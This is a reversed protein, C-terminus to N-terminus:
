YVEKGVVYGKIAAVTQLILIPFNVLPFIFLGPLWKNVKFVRILKLISLLYILLILGLTLKLSFFLLLILIIILLIRIEFDTYRSLRQKLGHKRKLAGHAEGLQWEKKFFNIISSKGSYHKHYIIEESMGFKLGEKKSRIGFDSDEGATKFHDQDFIGIKKFFEKKFATGKGLQGFCKVGATKFTFLKTLFPYKEWIELPLIITADVGYIKDNSYLKDIVKSLGDAKAFVCDEHIFFLTNYKSIKIGLNYNGALGLNKKNEILKVGKKMIDKKFELPLELKLNDYILIIEKKGLDKQSILSDVTESVKKYNFVPIIISINKQPKM